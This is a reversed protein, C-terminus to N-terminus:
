GRYPSSFPLITDPTPLEATSLNVSVLGSLPVFVREAIQLM